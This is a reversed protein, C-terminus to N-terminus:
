QQNLWARDKLFYKLAGDLDPDDTDRMSKLAEILHPPLAMDVSHGNDTQTEVIGCGHMVIKM